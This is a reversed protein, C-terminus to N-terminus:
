YIIAAMAMNQRIPEAVICGVTEIVGGIFNASCAVKWVNEAMDKPNSGKASEAFMAPLCVNFIFVFAAPTNVGFPQACVDSRREKQALKTAMWAYWVNGMLIAFALGPIVRGNTIAVFEDKYEQHQANGGYVIDPLSNLAFMMTVITVVNDSFLAVFAELDGISFWPYVIEEDLGNCPTILCLTECERGIRDGLTKAEEPDEKDM